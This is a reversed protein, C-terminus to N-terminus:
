KTRLIEEEDDSSPKTNMREEKLLREKKSKMTCEEVCEKNRESSALDMQLLMRDNEESKKFMEFASRKIECFKRSCKQYEEM